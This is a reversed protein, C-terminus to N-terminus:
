TDIVSRDISIGTLNAAMSEKKGQATVPLPKGRQFSRTTLNNANIQHERNTVTQSYKFADNSLLPKFSTICDVKAKRSGRQSAQAASLKDVIKVKGRMQGYRSYEDTMMLSQGFQKHFQYEPGVMWRPLMPRKKYNNEVCEDWAPDM